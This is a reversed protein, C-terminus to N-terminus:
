KKVSFSIEALTLEYFDEDEYDMTKLNVFVNDLTAGDINKVHSDIEELFERLSMSENQPTDDEDIILIPIYETM